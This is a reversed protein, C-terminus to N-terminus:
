VHMRCALLTYDFTCTLFLSCLTVHLKKERVAGGFMKSDGDSTAMNISVTTVNEHVKPPTGRGLMEHFYEM